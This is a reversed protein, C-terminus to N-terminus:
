APAPRGLRDAVQQYAPQAKHDSPLRGAALRALEVLTADTRWRAVLDAPLADQQALAVLLHLRDIANMGPPTELRNLERTLFERRKVEPVVRIVDKTRRVLQRQVLAPLTLQPDRALRWALQAAPLRSQGLLTTVYLRSVSDLGAPWRRAEVEEILQDVMQGIGPVNRERDGDLARDLTVPQDLHRVFSQGQYAHRTYEELCQGLAVISIDQPSLQRQEAQAALRFVCEEARQGIREALAQWTVPEPQVLQRACVVLSFYTLAATNEISPGAGSRVRLPYIAKVCLGADLVPRLLTAWPEAASRRCCLVLLGDDALTDAAQALLRALRGAAPPAAQAAPPASRGFIVPYDPALATRLWAQFFDSLLGDAPQGGGALDITMLHVSHRGLAARDLETSPRCLLSRVGRSPVMSDGVALRIARGASSLFIDSPQQAWAIEDEVAAVQGPFTHGPNPDAGARDLCPWPHMESTLLGPVGWRIGFPGSVRGSGPQYSTLRNTHELTGSWALVLYERADDDEVSLIADRLRASVLLQRENFLDTWRRMGHDLLAGSHRSGAPPNGSDGSVIPQDPLRRGTSEAELRQEAQEYLALDAADPRKYGQWACNPCNVRVAVMQYIPRNESQLASLLNHSAGCGPCTFSQGTVCGSHLREPPTFSHCAPCQSGSALDGAGSYVEGCSPCVLTRAAAARRSTAPRDLLVFSPFLAVQRGCGPAPCHVARVWIIQPTEGPQNCAPCHTQYYSRIDAAMGAEVQDFARRLAAADMGATGQKITFWAVPDAVLGVANAGLRLSEAIVASGAMDPDLVLRGHAARKVVGGAQEDMQYYLRQWATPELQEWEAREILSALLATRWLSDLRRGWRKRLSGPAQRRSAEKYLLRGVEHVPFDYEIYREPRPM